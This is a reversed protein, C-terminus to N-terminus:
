GNVRAPSTSSLREILPDGDTNLFFADGAAQHRGILDVVFDIVLGVGGGKGM